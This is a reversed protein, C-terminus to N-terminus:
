LHCSRAAAPSDHCDEREVEVTTHALGYRAELRQKIAPVAEAASVERALRVHLTMLARDHSLAWAHLHHVDRVGPVTRMLDARIAEVNIDSPVGELLIHSSERVLRMAGYVLIVAVAASLIPDILMWGTTM